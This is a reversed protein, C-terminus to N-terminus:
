CIRHRGICGTVIEHVPLQSKLIGPERRVVLATLVREFPHPRVRVPAELYPVRFFTAHSAALVFQDADSGKKCKKANEVCIKVFIPHFHIAM